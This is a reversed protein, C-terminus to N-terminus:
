RSPTSLAELEGPLTTVVPEGAGASLVVVLPGPHGPGSWSAEAALVVCDGDTVVRLDIASPAVPAPDIPIALEVESVDGRVDALWLALQTNGGQLHAVAAGDDSVATASLELRRELSRDLAVEGSALDVALLRLTGSGLHDASVTAGHYWRGCADSPHAPELGPPLDLMVPATDPRWYWWTGGDRDGALVLHADGDPWHRRYRAAGAVIVASRAIHACPREAEPMAGGPVADVRAGTHPDIGVRDDGQERVVVLVGGAGAGERGAGAMALLSAGLAGRLLQRRSVTTM